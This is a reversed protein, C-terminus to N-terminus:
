SDLIEEAHSRNMTIARQATDYSFGARALAALIKENEGSGFPGTKKRRLVTLAARIESHESDHAELKERVMPTEVGRLSLKSIIANRSKGQRRLSAVVGQTYLEDNLLGARTFKKITEEVLAACTEYDQDKHDACSRKVKRLMVSRFQGSSAAFRQLYYLGSNHLYGATIKKAKKRDSKKHKQASDMEFGLLNKIYEGFPM